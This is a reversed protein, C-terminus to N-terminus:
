SESGMVVGARDACREARRTSRRRVARALDQWFHWGALETPYQCRDPGAHPTLLDPASYIVPIWRLM